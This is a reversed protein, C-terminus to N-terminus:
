RAPEFQGYNATPNPSNLIESQNDMVSSHDPFFVPRTPIPHFTPWPPANKADIKALRRAKHADVSRTIFNNQLHGSAQAGWSKFRSGIFPLAPMHIPQGSQLDTPAFCSDTSCEGSSCPETACNDAFGIAEINSCNISQGTSCGREFMPNCCGTVFFSGILVFARLSMGGGICANNCTKPQRYTPQM